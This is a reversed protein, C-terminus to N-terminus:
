VRSGPWTIWEGRAVRRVWETAAVTGAERAVGRAPRHRHHGTAPRHDLRGPQGGARGRAVDAGAALALVAGATASDGAGTPDTPGEVRVGPVLTMEPDTVVMGAAGRTAVIPAGTTQACGRWRRPSNTWISRTARRRTRRAWRGRVPQAQHDRQPVPPDAAPQRGLLRRRAMAQARDAVGRSMAATVVGCDEEEVQDLVIVADLQPLLADLSRVIREGLAQPTPQRNKTDYREHEGALSADNRDRPKLYTPTMREPDCHLHDTGCGLAALDRACTTRSATTAPSASPTSRAPGWRPWTASSRARRAPATRIAAVQHATKGTEISVEAWAPDVDLYKDLFFDGVCPSGRGRSGGSSRKGAARRSMGAFTKVAQARALIQDYLAPVTLRHDGEVYYSKGGDAVTRVLITKYPRFYYKPDTKAAESDLRDGLPALDFM